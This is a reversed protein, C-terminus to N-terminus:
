SLTDGSSFRDILRPSMFERYAIIQNSKLNVVWVKLAYTGVKARSESALGGSQHYDGALTVFYNAAAVFTGKVVVISDLEEVSPIRATNDNMWPSVVNLDGAANDQESDDDPDQPKRGGGIWWVVSKGIPVNTNLNPITDLDPMSHNIYNVVATTLVSISANQKNQLAAQKNSDTQLLWFFSVILGVGFVWALVNLILTTRNSKMFYYSVQLEGHIQRPFSM